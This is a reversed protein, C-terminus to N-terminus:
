IVPSSFPETAILPLDLWLIVPSVKRDCPQLTIAHLLITPELFVYVTFLRCNGCAQVTTLKNNGEKIKGEVIVMLARKLVFLAASIVILTVM